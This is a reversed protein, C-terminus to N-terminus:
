PFKYFIIKLVKVHVDNVREQEHNKEEENFWNSSGISFVNWPILTWILGFSPVVVGTFVSIDESSCSRPKALLILSAGIEVAGDTHNWKEFVSQNLKIDM